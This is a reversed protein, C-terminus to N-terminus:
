SAQSAIFGLDLLYSTFCEFWAMPGQKPEYMSKLLKCVHHPKSSSVFGQPQQMSVEEQLTGHLFVNKVDLQRIKWGYHAALSLIM